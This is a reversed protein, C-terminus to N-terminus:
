SIVKILLTANVLREAGEEKRVFTVRIKKRRLLYEEWKKIPKKEKKLGKVVDILSSIAQPISFSSEFPDQSFPDHRGQPNYPKFKEPIQPLNLRLPFKEFHRRSESAVLEEGIFMSLEYEFDKFDREKKQNSREEQIFAMGRDLNIDIEIKKELILGNLKLSLTIVQSSNSEFFESTELKVINIGKRFLGAKRVVGGQVLKYYADSELEIGLTLSAPPFYDQSEEEEIFFVEKLVSGEDQYTLGSSLAIFFLILTFIKKNM